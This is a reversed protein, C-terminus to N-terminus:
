QHWNYLKEPRYILVRWRILGCSVCPLRCCPRPSRTDGDLVLRSLIDGDLAARALIDGDLPPLRCSM